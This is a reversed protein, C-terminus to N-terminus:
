LVYDQIKHLGDKYHAFIADNFGEKPDPKCCIISKSLSFVWM